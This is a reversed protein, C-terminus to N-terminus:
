RSKLAERAPIERGAQYFHLDGSSLLRVRDILPLREFQDRSWRRADPGTTAVQDWVPAAGM